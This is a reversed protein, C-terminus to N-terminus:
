RNANNVVEQVKQYFEEAISREVPEIHPIPATRGGNRKAHGKELLHTLFYKKKNHIIFHKSDNAGKEEKKDWNKAYDGTAKPSTSRLEEVAKDALEEAIVNIEQQLDKAYANLINGIDFEIGGSSM